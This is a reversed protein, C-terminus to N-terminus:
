GAWVDGWAVDRDAAISGLEVPQRRRALVALTATLALRRKRSLLDYDHFHVHVVHPLPSALSK